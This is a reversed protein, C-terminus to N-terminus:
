ICITQDLNGRSYMTSRTAFVTRTRTRTETVRTVALAGPLLTQMISLSTTGPGSCLDLVHHVSKLGLALVPLMTAPDM